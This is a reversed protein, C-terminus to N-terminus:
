KLSETCSLFFQLKEVCLGMATSEFGHMELIYPKCFGEVMCAGAKGIWMGSNLYSELEDNVFNAFKYCTTSLDIIKMYSVEAIMCTIISIESGSQLRLLERADDINRAKRLTRGGCSIVTDAVVLPMELGYLKKASEYKGLTARYVFDRPSCSIIGEEDFGSECQIFGIGSASLLEARTRSSSCLRIM